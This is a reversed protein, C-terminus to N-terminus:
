PSRPTVAGVLAFSGFLFRGLESVSENRLFGVKTAPSPEGDDLGATMVDQDSDHTM